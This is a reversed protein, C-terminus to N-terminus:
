IWLAYLNFKANNSGAFVIYYNMGAYDSVDLEVTTINSATNLLISKTFSTTGVIKSSAIGFLFNSGSLTYKLCLKSKDKPITIPVITGMMTHGSNYTPFTLAMYSSYEVKSITGRYDEFIGNFETLNEGNYVYLTQMNGSKWENWQGNYFIEVKDTEPNYRMNLNKNQNDINSNLEDIADQVNNGLGTQSGDYFLNEAALEGSDTILYITDDSLKDNSLADYEAQTLKVINSGSGGGGYEQGDLIFKAM